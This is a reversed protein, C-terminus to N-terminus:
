GLYSCLHLSPREQLPTIGLAELAAQLKADWDGSQSAQLLEAMDIGKTHGQAVNFSKAALFFMPYAHSCYAVVEVGVGAARLRDMAASEFDDDEDPDYWDVAAPLEGFEGAGQVKWGDDGGGLAYGYALIGSASPGGSM